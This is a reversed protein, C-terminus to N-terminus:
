IKIGLLFPSRQVIPLYAQVLVRVQECVYQNDEHSRFNLIAKSINEAKVHAEDEPCGLAFMGAEILTALEAPQLQRETGLEQLTWQSVFEQLLLLHTHNKGKRGFRQTKFIRKAIQLETTRRNVEAKLQEVVEAKVVPFTSKLRIGQLETDARLIASLGSIAESLKEKINDGRKKRDAM